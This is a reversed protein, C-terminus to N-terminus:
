TPAISRTPPGRSGREGRARGDRVGQRHSARRVGRHRRALADRPAGPQAQHQAAGEAGPPRASLRHGARQHSVGAGAARRLLVAPDSTASSRWGRACCTASPRRSRRSSRPSTAPSARCCSAAPAGRSSRRRSASSTGSSGIRPRRAGGAPRRRDDLLGVSLRRRGQGPLRRRDRHHDRAVREQRFLVEDFIPQILYALRRHRRRLRGDRRPGGRAPGPLAAHVAAAAPVRERGRGAPRAAPTAAPIAAGGSGPRTSSPELDVYRPAWGLDRRIRDASAYLVRRIARGGRGWPTRCRSAPSRRSPRCCRACRSRGASASTTPARRAVPRCIRRAGAPARRRSRRRPRLRAPLHRRADPLRRRLDVLPEAGLVADIARPILHVEPQHDEGIIGDPDAGAANFYRLVVSRIGYAREFHPLAREIALKTEGYTNIPRQPHDEDIPAREPEGFTAATSSFIFAPVKAEAMAGLVALAGGVNNDYYEVPRSVSEGVLLWAAFHM